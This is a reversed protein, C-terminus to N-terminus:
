KMRVIRAIREIENQLRRDDRPVSKEARELAERARAFNPPTANAYAWALQVQVLHAPKGLELARQLSVPAGAARDKMRSEILGRTFWAEAEDPSVQTARVAKGRADDLRRLKFLFMAYRDFLLGNEPDEAVALEYYTECDDLQGEQYARYALRAFPRRFALHMRDVIRRSQAAVFEDYRRKVRAVSATAPHKNGDVEVFREECFRLFDAAFLVQKVGAIPFVTAIGRSAELAEFARQVSVSAEDCCLKVLYEDLVDATRTMLLVLRQTDTDFRQWADAYLFEGLDQRQMRLVRDFASQLGLGPEQATQVLVELALPRCGLGDAFGRLTRRSATGIAQIRLDRGRSRVLEEAEATSLPPVAISYAELDERRRSTLLVRGVRRTLRHLAAGLIRIEDETSALTETNDLVLLHERRSIGFKQSIYQGLRDITTDVEDSLWAKELPGGDWARVIRRAVDVIALGSGRIRELGNVGWRTQKATFFSIVAPRHRTNVAAPDRLIRHLFELVLTTKGIGGDGFVQCALSDSDNLWEYLRALAETRGMFTSTIRSPLLILPSWEPDGTPAISYEPQSLVELREFVDRSEFRIETRVLSDILVHAQVECRGDTLPKIRRYCILHGDHLRSLELNVTRGDAASLALKDSGPESRAPLLHELWDVLLLVLDLLADPDEDGAISHGEAGDNRRAVSAVLLSHLTVSSRRSRDAIRRAIRERPVARWLAASAHHWEANDAAIAGSELADILDGDAPQRLERIADLLGNQQERAPHHVLLWEALPLSLYQLAVRLIGVAALHRDGRGPLAQARGVANILLDRM